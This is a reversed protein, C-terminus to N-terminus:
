AQDTAEKWEQVMQAASSDNASFPVLTELLSTDLTINAITQANAARYSFPRNAATLLAGMELSGPAAVNLIKPLDRRTALAQLVRALTAPGIYSRAPTKGDSMQDMVAGAKWGGLAADAGAVNGIRLCTSPHPHARAMQEMQYKSVGYNAAPSVAIDEGLRGTRAGYVAASSTLMVHGAGAARAGDLCARGICLNDDFNADPAPTVGALCIVSEAGNLVAALGTPDRLLDVM